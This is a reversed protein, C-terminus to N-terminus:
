DDSNGRVMEVARLHGALAEARTSYREQYDAHEGGFIMTEFLLPPGDGSGHDFSLFVTSVEVDDRQWAAVRRSNIGGPEKDATAQEYWALWTEYDTAVAEGDVLIYYDHM